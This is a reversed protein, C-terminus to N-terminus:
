VNRHMFSWLLEETRESKRRREQFCTRFGHLRWIFVDEQLFVAWISLCAKEHLIEYMETCLHGYYNKQERM